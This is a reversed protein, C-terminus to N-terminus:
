LTRINISKRLPTNLSAKRRGQKASARVPRLLRDITAASMRLLRERVEVDLCLHGHHEMSEVFTPLVAKLRKGCIRDAAEWLITLATIVAENYIRREPPQPSAKARYGNGLVRIAYKRHYGAMEAFEDLIRKERDPRRKPVARAGSRNTRTQSGHQATEEGNGNWEDPVPLM